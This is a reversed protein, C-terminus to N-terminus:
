TATAWAVRDVIQEALDSPARDDTDVVFDFPAAHELSQALDLSRAEYWDRREGTERQRVRDILTEPRARLLCVVPAAGPVADMFDQLIQDTEVVRALILNRSGAAAANAWVDKLNRIALRDGFPDDAPRPFTDTLRDVDIVTHTVGRQILLASAANAVTSKGVAVPGSVVLM